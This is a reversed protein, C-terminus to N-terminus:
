KGFLIKQELDQALPFLVENELYIHRFLDKELEKLGFYLEKFSTCADAPAAYDRTLERMKQLFDNASDHETLMMRVPNSLTENSKFPISIKNKDSMELNKIFPFLVFEEKRMHATLDDCFARFVRRLAALEFHRDSHKYCVKEMLTTLRGIETRTFFHHNEIIYDILESPSKIEAPNTMEGNEGIPASFNRGSFLPSVGTSSFKERSNECCYDTKKDEFIRISTPMEFAKVHNTKSELNQM